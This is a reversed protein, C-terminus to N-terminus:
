ELYFSKLTAIMKEISFQSASTRGNKILENKLNNDLLIKRINLEIDKTNKYDCVLANKQDEIFESAIGSLTFVSPIGSALAEVYTQGFAESHNDIPTHVFVNFNKYLAPLDHEFAIECYNKKPLLKLLKKIQKEYDGKANALVLQANPYDSLLKLFAQITYQIGKWETYRSIVGIVPAGSLAYKSRINNIRNESCNEFSSLQFGHHIQTIKSKSVNEDLLVNRVVNSIAIIHTAMKNCLKDYKVASPFYVHHYSSHHRTYVRKKIGALKSALLGILSAEFLHAHVIDPKEKKLYRFTQFLARPLDRKDKFQIEKVRIQNKLLFTSLESKEPNLLIFSVSLESDNLGIALWEFALAKDINSVIYIIKKKL